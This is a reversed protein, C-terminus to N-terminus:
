MVTNKPFGFEVPKKVLPLLGAGAAGLFGVKGVELTELRLDERRVDRPGLLAM